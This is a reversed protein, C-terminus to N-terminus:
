VSIMLTCNDCTSEIIYYQYQDKDVTNSLPSQNELLIMNEFLVFKFDVAKESDEDTVSINKYVGFILGCSRKKNNSDFDSM